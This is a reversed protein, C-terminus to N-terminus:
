SKKGEVYTPQKPSIVKNLVKKLRISLVKLLIKYLCGVLKVPRYNKLTLPDRSKPSLSIFSSNCGRALSGYDEFDKMFLKVEM